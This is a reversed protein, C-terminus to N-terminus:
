AGCEVEWAAVKGGSYLPLVGTCIWTQGDYEIKMDVEPIFELDDAAVLLKNGEVLYQDEENAIVAKVCFECRGSRTVKGTAPDYVLQSYLTFKANKGLDGLLDAIAEPLDADLDSQSTSFQPIGGGRLHLLYAAVDEGSYIPRVSITEWITGDIRVNQDPVPTFTLKESAVLLQMDGQRVTSGDILDVSFKFPPSTRATIYSGSVLFESDRGLDTLIETVGPVLGLDLDTSPGASCPISISGLARVKAIGRVIGPNNQPQIVSYLKALGRSYSLAFLLRTPAANARSVSTSIGTATRLRNVAGILKSLAKSFGQAVKIRFTGAVARSVALSQGIAVKLRTSGTLVRSGARSSATASRTRLSDAQIKSLAKSVGIALLTGGSALTGVAVTKALGKSQGTVSSVVGGTAVAKATGRAYGASTRVRTTVVYSRSVGDSVSVAVKNRIAAGSTKADGKTKGVLNSQGIFVGMLTKVNGSVTPFVFTIGDSNWSQVQGRFLDTGSTTLTAFCSDNYSQSKAVHPPVASEITASCVNQFTNTASGWGYAVQINAGTSKGTNIASDNTSSSMFRAAAPKWTTTYKQADPVASSITPSLKILDVNVDDPFGLILWMSSVVDTGLRTTFGFVGSEMTTVEVATEFTATGTSDVAVRQFVYDDRCIIGCTQAVSMNDRSRWNLSGQSITGDRRKVAAGIYARAHDKGDPVTPYGSNNAWAFALRPKIPATFGPDLTVEADQTASNSKSTAYAELQDGYFFTVHMLYPNVLLDTWTITVGGTEWNKFDAHAAVGTSGGNTIELLQAPASGGARRLGSDSPSSNNQDFVSFTRGNTGDCIGFILRANNTPTGSTSVQSLEIVVAKPTEVFDPITITQDVPVTGTTVAAVTTTRWGAVSM